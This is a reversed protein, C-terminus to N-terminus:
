QLLRIAENVINDSTLGYHKFIEVPRAHIVNEDPIGIIKMKVPSNQVVVEAM